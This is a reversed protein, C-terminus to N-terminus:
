IIAEFGGDRFFVGTVSPWWRPLFSRHGIAGEARCFLAMQRKLRIKKYLLPQVNYLHQAYEDEGDGGVDGDGDGDVDDDVDDYEDEGDRVDQTTTM